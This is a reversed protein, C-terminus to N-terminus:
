SPALMAFCDAPTLRFNLCSAALTPLRFTLKRVEIGDNNQMRKLIFDSMQKGIRIPNVAKSTEIYVLQVVWRFPPFFFLDVELDM